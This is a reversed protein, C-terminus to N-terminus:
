VTAHIHRFILSQHGRSLEPCYWIHVIGLALPHLSCSSSLPGIGFSPPQMFLEVVWHGDRNSLPSSDHTQLKAAHVVVYMIREAMHYKHSGLRPFGVSRLTQLCCVEVESRDFLILRICERCLNKTSNALTKCSNEVTRKTRWLINMQEVYLNSFLALGILVSWDLLDFLWLM